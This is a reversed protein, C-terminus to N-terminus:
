GVQDLGARLRAREEASLAPLLGHRLAFDILVLNVNFKVRDGEVVARLAEAAPRLEFREVEDDQPRPMVGEPLELDYLHLVDRRLGEENAMVYSVRGVPVAQAALEPALSAEEGAEKVLCEAPSLGAPIGGAVINDMQGPAVPKARSRWGVWLHLGDARRVFGNVHVGQSIVGFAPLAGRDLRALVPGEPTARVDFAEGRLRFHGRAALSAAIRELATTRAGEARLRGALAAGQGDFHIDRPFFALARALEAGMWGVQEGGIRFPILHAPSAINNCAEVHRWLRAFPLLDSGM